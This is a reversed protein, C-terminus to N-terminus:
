ESEPDLSMVHRIRLEPHTQLHLLVVAELPQLAVVSGVLVESSEVLPSVVRDVLTLLLIIRSDYCSSQVLLFYDKIIINFIIITLFWSVSM